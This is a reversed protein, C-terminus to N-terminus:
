SSKPPIHTRFTQVLVTDSSHSMNHQMVPCKIPVRAPINISIHIVLTRGTSKWVPISFFIVLKLLPSPKKARFLSFDHPIYM